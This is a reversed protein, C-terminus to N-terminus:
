DAAADAEASAEMGQRMAETIESSAGALFVRGQGPGTMALMTGNDLHEAIEPYHTDSLLLVRAPADSRNSVRHAGRDGAPFAILEGPELERWGDPTRLTPRGSLVVLMEEIGHHVHYPSVAGGPAIEYVTAGLREAGAAAGARFVKLRFPEPLEAEWDDSFLNTM